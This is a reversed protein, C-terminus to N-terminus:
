HRHQLNSLVIMANEMTVPVNLILHTSNDVFSFTRHTKRTNVVYARGEEIELSRDEFIFDYEYRKCNKLFVLIRFVDRNLEPHDRHPVFYGGMHCRVLFSRGLSPFLKLVPHLSPCADFVATPSGCETEKVRRGVNKSIELLSPSQKHTFGPYTLVTLADRNNVRDTRPLYPAWDADFQAIEREYAGTDIKISLPVIDGLAMLQMEALMQEETVKFDGHRWKEAWNTQNIGPAIPRSIIEM